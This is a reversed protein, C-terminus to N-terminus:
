EPLPDAMLATRLAIAFDEIAGQLEEYTVSGNYKPTGSVVVVFTRDSITLIGMDSVITPDLLLGRKNYFTIEPADATIVGFYHSDNETQVGMLNVLYANYESPLYDGLYLNELVHALDYATTQRPFFNTDELGLNQLYQMSSGHEQIFNLLSEAALEESDVILAQFLQDFSRGAYGLASFDALSYGMENLIQLSVIALPIKIMSAPHFPDNPLSEFLITQADLDKVLVHWYATNLESLHLTSTLTPATALGGQRRVLLFGATGTLGLKMRKTLDTLEEFLGGQGTIGDYLKEESITFGEGRDINTVTYPSGDEDVRTVVLMHDFGNGATFLFLWDGPLLPDSRFDYTRVSETVRTYDFEEPPFYKRQLVDSLRNGERLDLLWIDHMSTTEPLLGADRLIAVSLPGCSNSASESFGDVFGIDRAIADAAEPTDAIYSRSAQVLAAELAATRADVPDSETEVTAELTPEPSLAETATAAATALGVLPTPEATAPETPTTPSQAPMCASLVSLVILQLCVAAIIGQKVTKKESRKAIGIM